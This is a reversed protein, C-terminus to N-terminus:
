KGFLQEALPVRPLQGAEHFSFYQGEYGLIFYDKLTCGLLHGVERWEKVQQFDGPTPELVGSLRTKAVVLGIANLLIAPKFVERAMIITESLNGMAITTIGIAAGRENFPIAVLHERDSDDLRLSLLPALTWAHAEITPPIKGPALGKRPKMAIDFVQLDYRDAVTSTSRTPM